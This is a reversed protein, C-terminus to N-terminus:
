FELLDNKQNPKNTSFDFFNDSLTPYLESFQDETIENGNFQNGMSLKRNPNGMSLQRHENNKQNGPAKMFQQEFALPQILEQDMATPQLVNKYFGCQNYIPVANANETGYENEKDFELLDVYESKAKVESLKKPFDENNERKELPLSERKKLTNLTHSFQKFDVSFNYIKYEQIYKTEKQFYSYISLCAKETRDLLQKALEIDKEKEM